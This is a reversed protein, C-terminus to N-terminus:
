KQPMFVLHLNPGVGLGICTEIDTEGNKTNVNMNIITGEHNGYLRKRPLATVMPPHQMNLLGKEGYLETAHKSNRPDTLDAQSHGSTVTIDAIIM